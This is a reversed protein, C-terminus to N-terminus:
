LGGFSFSALESVLLSVVCAWDPDSDDDWSATGLFPLFLGACVGPSVGSEWSPVAMAM